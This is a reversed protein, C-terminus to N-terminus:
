KGNPPFPQLGTGLRSSICSDWVLVHVAWTESWSGMYFLLVWCTPLVDSIVDAEPLYQPELKQLFLSCVHLSHFSIVASMGYRVAPCYQSSTQLSAPKRPGWKCHGAIWSLAAAHEPLTKASAHMTKTWSCPLWVLQQWGKVAALFINCRTCYGWM